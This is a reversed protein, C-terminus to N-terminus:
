INLEVQLATLYSMPCVKGITKLPVSLGSHISLNENYNYKVYQRVELAQNIYLRWDCKKVKAHCVLDLNLQNDVQFGCAKDNGRRRLYGLKIEQDQCSLKSDLSNSAKVFFENLNETYNLLGDFKLQNTATNWQIGERLYWKPQTYNFNYNLFLGSECTVWVSHWFNKNVEKQLGFQYQLKKNNSFFKAFYSAEFKGLKWQGFDLGLKLDTHDQVRFHVKTGNWPFRVDVKQSKCYKRFRFSTDQNKMQGNIQLSHNEPNDVFFTYFASDKIQSTM